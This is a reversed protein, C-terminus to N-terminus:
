SPRKFAKFRALDNALNADHPHREAAESLMKIGLLRQQTVFEEIGKRRRADRDRRDQEVERACAKCEGNKKLDELSEIPHPDIARFLDPKGDCEFGLLETIPVNGYRRDLSPRREVLESYLDARAFMEPTIARFAEEL